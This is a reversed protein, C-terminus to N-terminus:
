KLKEKLFRCVENIATHYFESFGVKEQLHRTLDSFHYKLLNVDEKSVLSDKTLCIISPVKCSGSSSLLGQVKLSLAKLQTKNVNWDAADMDLRNCISARLCAPVSDLIKQDTFISHVYPSILALAKVQKPKFMAARICAGGAFYVGFLGINTSDIFKHESIRDIAAEIFASYHDSLNLAASSGQGPMELFLVATNNPKLHEIYPHLYDTIFSEYNVTVILLSHLSEKDPLVLMGSVNRNDCKFEIDEVIGLSPTCEFMKRFTSKCLTYSTDALIDGKLNPFAAIAFYRSAMRYNHAAKKLDGDIVCQKALNVRKQAISNFEFNWHGPGYEKVTDLCSRRSRPADSVSINALAEDIDLLNGGTIVWDFRTIPRYYNNYFGLVSSEDPLSDDDPSSNSIMSTEPYSFKPKFLLESLNESAM